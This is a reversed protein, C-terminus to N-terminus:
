KRKLWTLLVPYALQFGLGTFKITNDYAMFLFMTCLIAMGTHFYPSGNPLLRQYLWPLCLVTLAIITMGFWGLYSFSKSYVTTVNFPGPIRADSPDELQFIRKTRKSIFDFLLESNILEISRGFSIVPETLRINEQLNALPSSIYIYTWFFENPVISKRFSTTAEGVKLFLQNDYKVKAERSVRLTGMVGFLYFFVIVGTLMFVLSKKSIRPSSFILLMISSAINFVVMARSYILVGAILNVGYWILVSKDKTSLYLHFLYVTYFSAFTVTFVHLSPVGFLRYNYPIGVLIKFLPVGGEYLFDALWLLYIFATVKWPNPNETNIPRWGPYSKKWRLGIIFHLGLTAAIFFTLSLSLRSYLSSWQFACVTLAFAFSIIYCYFPNM